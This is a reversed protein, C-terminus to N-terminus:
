HYHVLSTDTLIHTRDRAWSLPNPIRCQLLSHHLDYVHSPDGMATATATATATAYAQLHMESEVRLGPIEMHWIHPALILVLVWIVSFM